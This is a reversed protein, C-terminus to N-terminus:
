RPDVEVPTATDASMRYPLKWYRTGERNGFYLHSETKADPNGDAWFTTFRDAGNFTRRVYGHNRESDRTTEHAKTWSAAEDDSIWVEVEGGQGWFRLPEDEPDVSPAGTPGVVRWRSGEVFISGTDYNHTVTSTATASAPMERTEWGSGNWHSTVWKRPEAFPGPQHANGSANSATTYLLIPDGDQDFNLDNLYVLKDAAVGDFVKAPSDTDTIPLAVPMGDATTWTVGFDTTQVYFLDTREDVNRDPHRNFMTGIKNGTRWTVQYHGEMDALQKTPNWIVGDASTRFFLERGPQYITFLHIFGSGPIHFVQPYGRKDGAPPEVLEFEDASYPTTSKFTHDQRQAGRGSVFVWLYGDGDIALAPNDHPDNVLGGEFETKDLVITPKPVSHTAHDYESAMVLLRSSTAEDTGGYVFFTKDVAEAYISLPVHKATYTGLGGSYKSGFTSGQGLDFWIGRYGNAKANAVVPPSGEHLQPPDTEAQTPIMLAPVGFAFAARAFKHIKPKM